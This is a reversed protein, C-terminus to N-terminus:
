IEYISLEGDLSRCYIVAGFGSELRCTVDSEALMGTLFSFNMLVAGAFLNEKLIEPM